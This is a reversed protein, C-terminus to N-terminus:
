KAAFFKAIGEREKPRKKKKSPPQPQDASSPRFRRPSGPSGLQRSLEQAYHFDTHEVRLAELAEEKITDELEGDVLDQPLSIRKSCKDCMFCAANGATSDDDGQRQVVNREPGDASEESDRKRKVPNVTCPPAGVSTSPPKLFADISRQGVEMVEVGTFGLAVNTIKLPATRSTDPGILEKWLKDGASAIVDVSPDRTFPFAAQKSRSADYGLTQMETFRQCTCHAVCEAARAASADEAM